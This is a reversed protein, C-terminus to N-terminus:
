SVANQYHLRTAAIKKGDLFFSLTGAYGDAEMPLDRNTQVKLVRKLKLDEGYSLPLKFGKEAVLAMRHGDNSITAVRDNRKVLTRVPFNKFTWNCLSIHDNYDNPDNLTVIVIRRGSDPDRFCTVLTRGAKQTFGTKIGICREDRRLMKNHNTFPVGDKTRVSKRRVIDAFLKNRMAYCGLVAMDRACSYNNEDILGNPCSFHTHTMGLEKAKRNMMKVFKKESGATAEAVAMAADNGSRLLTGYLITRLPYKDGKELYMSAEGVAAAHASVTIIRDLNKNNEIVLIGTMIKTTSAICREEFPNKEYLVRGNDLDMVCVSTASTPPAGEASACVVASFALALATLLSAIRRINQKM